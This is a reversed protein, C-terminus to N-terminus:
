KQLDTKANEVAQYRGVYSDGAIMITRKNKPRSKGPHNTNSSNSSAYGPPRDEGICRRNYREYGQCRQKSKSPFLRWTSAHVMM